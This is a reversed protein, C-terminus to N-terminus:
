NPRAERIRTADADLIATVRDLDGLAAATPLDYAAGRSVLLRATEIDHPLVAIVARRRVFWLKVCGILLRWRSPCAGTPGGWIACDIAHLDQPAYGNRGGLGAGHVAHIDAGRDLVLAVVKPQRGIVARHLPTGGSRDSRRVLSPDADLLARVQKLDGAEAAPHIPHDTHTEAPRVRVARQCAEELSPAIAESGRDRATEMLTAGWVGPGDPEAGADLLVRVADLHGERVAFPLPPPVHHGGRVLSPDRELLRRLTPVDGVSAATIADRCDGTRAADPDPSMNM